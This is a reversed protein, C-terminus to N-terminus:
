PTGGCLGVAYHGTNDATSADNVGFTLLGSPANIQFTYRHDSRYAPEQNNPIFLEARQGNITLLWNYQGTPHQPVIPNGNSDTFIYFADSYAGGSAQGVGSVTVMNLGTYTYISSVANRGGTFLARLNEGDQCGGPVALPGYYVSNRTTGDHGGIAYVFGQEAGVRLSNRLEPLSATAVWQGLSGGNMIPAYYVATSNGGLLYLYGDYEFTAYGSMQQPLSNTATWAGVTGNANISAYYVHGNPALVYLLGDYVAMTHDQMAEPLPTTDIWSSLTGNPNVSAYKVFDRLGGSNGGTAYIYNGYAAAAFSQRSPNLSATQLWAGLSGNPQIFAFYVATAGAAGTILYMRNGVRVVVQDYFNGPLQTASMWQGLTGDPRIASYYVNRSPLNNNDRGGFVYVRNNYFVLQQGRASFPAASSQPLPTTLGWSDISPKYAGSTRLIPELLFPNYFVYGKSANDNHDFILQDIELSSITGWWNRLGLVDQGSDNYVTYSCHVSPVNGQTAFAAFEMMRAWGRAQDSALRIYRATVPTFDYVVARISPRSLETVIRVQEGAFAGTTSVDIHYQTPFDGPNIYYPYVMVEAVTTASGLDVQWYDGPFISPPFGNDTPFWASPESFVVGDVAKEPTSGNRNSTATKGWALNNPSAMSNSVCELNNHSLNVRESIQGDFRDQILVGPTSNNMLQNRYISVDDSNHNIIGRTNMVINNHHIQYHHSPPDYVPDYPDPRNATLTIGAYGNGAIHNNNLENDHGHDIEIGSASNNNIQNRLVKSNYSFGLWFGYHSNSALNNEFVNGDSFTSEFANHPSFSGDNGYVYNNHSARDYGNGLFFGDGSNTLSNSIIRNNHSGSVLLIGASDGSDLYQPCCSVDCTPSCDCPNCCANPPRPYRRRDVFDAINGRVLNNTSGQLRIGWCSNQESENGEPGSSTKNNYVQNYDSNIMELGTSQNTLRNNRVISSDVNNFLIGGGYLDGLGINLFCTTTDKFNNSIDSNQILVNTANEIRIGYRFGQININSLTLGSYGDMTIGYGEFAAQSSGDEVSGIITVGSGDLTVNDGEIHIIGDGKADRLRYVGPKLKTNEKIVLDDTVEVEDSQATVRQSISPQYIVLFFIFIVSVLTLLLRKHRSM